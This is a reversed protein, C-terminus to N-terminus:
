IKRLPALPLIVSERQNPTSQQSFITEKKCWIHISGRHSVTSSMTYTADTIYHWCLLLHTMLTIQSAIGIETVSTILVGYIQEQANSVNCIAESHTALSFWLAQLLVYSIVCVKVSSVCFIWVLKNQFLM